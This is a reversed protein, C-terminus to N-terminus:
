LGALLSAIAGDLGARPNRVGFRVEFCPACAAIGAAMRSADQRLHADPRTRPVLWPQRWFEDHPTFCTAELVDRAQAPTLQRILPPERSDTLRAAIIVRLWSGASLGTGLAAAYERASFEAKAATGFVAPLQHLAPQPRSATNLARSLEPTAAITGRAVPVPLPVAILRARHDLILRDNSLLRGRTAQIVATLTTTKGASRPGCVMVAHGNLDAGAAHFLVAGTNEYARIMAERMLRLPYRQAQPASPDAHLTIHNGRISVAYPPAQTELADSAVAYCRLGDSGHAERLVVGPVIEILRQGVVQTIDRVMHQRGADDLRIDLRYAGLDERDGPRGPLYGALYARQTAAWPEPATLHFTLDGAHCTWRSASTLARATM